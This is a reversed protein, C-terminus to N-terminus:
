SSKHKNYYNLFDQPPVAPSFLYGQFFQCGLALLEDRIAENEVYEAVISFGLKHGLTIISQVIDRSRSNQAIQKVLSGDLKVYDFSNSQLYKLSTQGMSFDDIAISLGNGHLKEINETTKDFYIISSDETIELVMNGTVGEEKVIDVISSLFESDNLQEANVNVSVKVQHNTEKIFLRIDKSVRRIICRTLDNYSHDEQALAVALPPFISQSGYKWRLLAEAGTIVNNEDLQPQYHMEVKNTAIDERLQIMMSKALIGIDDQKELFVYPTSDAMHEQYLEMMKRILMSERMFQLKESFKVFPLYICTGVAIIIVQLVTGMPTGSMLYGSFFPPTTWPIGTTTVGGVGPVAGEVIIPIMGALTALYSIILSVIPVLLFPIFMIPNLVIPFGYVLPENINFVAMPAATYALRKNARSRAGILLAILLCITAGSGGILAFNDMFTKSVIMTPDTNAPVFVSQAVAEMANGGHIGFFWLINLVFLYIIGSLLDSSLNTFIKSLAMSILDNFNNVHFVANIFLNIGIFVLITLLMPIIASSSNRYSIDSAVMQMKLLRNFLKSLEYFLKTGLIACIMATFVGIPGFHGLELAGSIGGFSALFCSLSVLMAMVQLSFNKFDFTSSYYYSIALVIYASMFGFTSDYIFGLIQYIIGEDSLLGAGATRIFEQFEPIPFGRLMLAIAGMVLIPVM